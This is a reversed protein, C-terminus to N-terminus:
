ASRGYSLQYLTPRRFRKKSLDLLECGAQGLSKGGESPPDLGGRFEVGPPQM